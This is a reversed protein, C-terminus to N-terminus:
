KTISRIPQLNNKKLNTTSFKHNYLDIYFVYVCILLLIVLVFFVVFLLYYWNNIDIHKSSNKQDIFKKREIEYTKVIM